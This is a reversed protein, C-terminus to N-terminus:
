ERTQTLRQSQHHKLLSYHTIIFLLCVNMYAFFINCLLVYICKPLRERRIEACPLVDASSNSSSSSTGQEPTKFKRRQKPCVRTNAPARTLVRACLILVLLTLLTCPHSLFPFRVPPLDQYSKIFKFLEAKEQELSQIKDGVTLIAEHTTQPTIGSKRVRARFAEIHAMDKKTEDRAKRRRENALRAKAERAESQKDLAENAKDVSDLMEKAEALRSELARLRERAGRHRREASLLDEFHKGVAAIISSQRLNKVGLAQALSALGQLDRRAESSLANNDPALGVSQLVAELRRSEAKYQAAHSRADSSRLELLLKREEHRKRISDLAALTQVNVEFEPVSKTGGYM